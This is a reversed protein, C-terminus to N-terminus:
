QSRACRFGDYFSWGIPIYRFRNAARLVNSAEDDFSGGRIVRAITADDSFEDRGDNSNYPYPFQEPDYITSTWEWVNGVLDYAGIWSVGGPKSGVAAPQDANLASVVYDQVFENGWPYTRSDPGRSAYEWEAETPLRAGRGECFKLATLWRVATRPQNPETWPTEGDAIGGLREFQENTVEYRDIWFPVDFCVEHVPQENAEGNVSGMWFCGAPGQVMEVQYQEKYREDVVPELNDWDRLAAIRTATAFIEEPSKGRGFPVLGVEGEALIEARAQRIEFADVQMQLDDNKWSALVALVALFVIIAITVVAWATRVQQKRRHENVALQHEYQQSVELFLQEEKSPTNRGAWALGKELVTGRYLLDDDLKQGHNIWAAADESINRQLIIDERADHLWKGLQGWERILAEHSVEITARQTSVENITLLRARVFQDTVEHLIQSQRADPLELETLAARRRTTDQETSGPEILRLFLTCALRRHEATKLDEYTMQAHRALAGRLGGMERYAELTLIQNKRKEFLQDLTFQLLPLGGVQERVEFLLDGVLGPEFTLRVDPLLAPKEIVDRLDDLSMPLVARHHDVLLKGLNEYELAMPRDYFDARLTLIVTVPGKSESVAAVLLAIFQEREDEDVTQTFLEEFQDIFLVLRKDTGITVQSGLLHLGRGESTDLDQRIVVNAKPMVNALTITLSELPHAGPVIRDLYVWTESGPLAGERLRPLLGAMVVSSKGSGSPGVVALLRVNDMQQALVEVLENVLRERGFFYPRDDETFPLLGKYPNRPEFDLEMEHMPQEVQLPVQQLTEVIYPVAQEYAEGRADIHQIKIMGLPICDAWKEGTAWIPYIPCNYMEAIELEGQVYNSQRSNPSAVFIMARADRIADRLAQEWNRTGAKLGTQDIWVTVGAAHLDARLRDVFDQDARSYSIFVTQM